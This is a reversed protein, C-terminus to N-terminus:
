WEGATAHKWWCSNLNKVGSLSPYSEAHLLPLSQPLFRFAFFIVTAIQTGPVLAAQAVAANDNVPKPFIVSDCDFVLRLYM